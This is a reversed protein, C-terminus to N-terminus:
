ENEIRRKLADLIGALLMDFGNEEPEDQLVLNDEPPSRDAEPLARPAQEILSAERDIRQMDGADFFTSSM